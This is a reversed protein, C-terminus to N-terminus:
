GVNRMDAERALVIADADAGTGEEAAALRGQHALVRADQKGHVRQGSEGVMVLDWEEDNGRVAAAEVVVLVVLHVLTSDRLRHELRHAQRVIYDVPGFVKLQDLLTRAM